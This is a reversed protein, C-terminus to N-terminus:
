KAKLVANIIIPQIRHVLRRTIKEVQQRTLDNLQNEYENMLSQRVLEIKEAIPQIVENDSNEAWTQFLRVEDEIIKEAKPIDKIREFNQRELYGNLKGLDYVEIEGPLNNTEFDRPIAMDIILDPCKGESILKQLMQNTVIYDPSGTSSFAAKCEALVSAINDLPAAIGGYEEALIEAKYLTRNVFILNQFNHAKLESALIKTNENVGIIAIKDDPNIKDIIIKSAVGSVSQRGEGLITNNRIAKGCRFAAHFLKHMIKELTKVECAISYAEKVQGQIQYEGLVLSELGSIVRFLHNTAQENSLSIFLHERGEFIIQKEEFYYKRVIEEPTHNGSLLMYFEIRNCTNLILVAEVGEYEKITKLAKPIEKRQMQFVGREQTQSTKHNIGYIYLNM